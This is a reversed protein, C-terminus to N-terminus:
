SVDNGREVGLDDLLAELRLSRSGKLLVLDGAEVKASVAAAAAQVDPFHLLESRCGAGRAAALAHRSEPGIFVVLAPSVPMEAILTGLRSHEAKPDALEKMDGLILVLRRTGQASAEASITEIAATMSQPNANYCDSFVTLRGKHVEGRGFLPTVSELGEAIHTDSVGVAEAISIAALVNDAVFGGPLPVHIEMGRYYLTGGAIGRVEYGEFGDNVSPGYWRLTGEVTGSTFPEALLDRCADFSPVFGTDQPALFRYIMRKERAVGERSGVAETHADGTNTILAYNPRVIEALRVMEGPHDMAMEFVAYRHEATVALASLPVGINSNLNGTSCFTPAARKLISALMEKTSTKGNSGTIGIRIASTYTDLYHAALGQLATLVDSVVLVGAGESIREVEAIISPEDMRRSDVLFCSAGADYAARLYEHGDSHRGPLAAFLNGPVVVRSDVAVGSFEGRAGLVQELVADFRNIAQKIQPATYTM